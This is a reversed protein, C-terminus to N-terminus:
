SLEKGCFRCLVAAQKITEACYPCVKTENINEPFPKEQLYDALWFLGVKKLDKLWRRKVLWNNQNFITKTVEKGAELSENLAVTNGIDYTSFNCTPCCVVILTVSRSYTFVIAGEDRYHANIFERVVNNCKPCKFKRGFALTTFGTECHYM